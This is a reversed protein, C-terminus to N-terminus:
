FVGSSIYMYKSELQMLWFGALVYVCLDLWVTPQTSQQGNAIYQVGNVSLLPM